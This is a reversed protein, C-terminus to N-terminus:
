GNVAVRDAPRLTAPDFSERSRNLRHARRPHRRLVDRSRASWRSSTPPSGPIRELPDDGGTIRLSLRVNYSSKPGPSSCRLLARASRFPETEERHAV